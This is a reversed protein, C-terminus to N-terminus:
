EDTEGGRFREVLRKIRLPDGEYLNTV